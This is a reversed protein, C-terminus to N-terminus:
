IKMKLRHSQQRGPKLVLKEASSFGGVGLDWPVGGSLDVEM